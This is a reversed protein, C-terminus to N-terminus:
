NGPLIASVSANLSTVAPTVASGMTGVATSITLGLVITAILVIIQKM